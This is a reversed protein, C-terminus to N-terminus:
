DSACRTGAAPPTLTLLYGDVDKRICSSAFYATHGHGVRTLLVGHQLQSALAEAWAYPTVPDGTSGVVVIPPSGIAHLPEIKGTAAVPWVACGIEGYLDTAGFFPSAAEASPLDAQIQALTPAPQDLCDVAANVEFLNSYSGDSNRGTYSDFEQLLDTGDGTSADALTTELDPWTSTFYLPWLTGYVVEAPGVTRTTGKAPLPAVVSRAFLAELTQEPNPGPKWPCSSSSTCASIFQHLQTELSASQEQIEALAPLAPDLAGDLVMARVHTPFLEAYTAGLFTGYSFGLYTLKADGLDRRLYDMDIAADVTSVYPLEAGSHEECGKAFARAEDILTALGAATTPAPDAHFYQALGASDL